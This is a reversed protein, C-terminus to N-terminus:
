QKGKIKWCFFFHNKKGKENKRKAYDFWSKPINEKWKIELKWHLSLIQTGM